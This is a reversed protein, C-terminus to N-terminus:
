ESVNLPYYANTAQLWMDQLRTLELIFADSARYRRSFQQIRTLRRLNAMRGQYIRKGVMRLWSLLIPM